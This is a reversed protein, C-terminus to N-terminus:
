FPSGFKRQGRTATAITSNWWMQTKFFYTFFFYRMFCRVIHSIYNYNVNCTGAENCSIDGVEPYINCEIRERQVIEELESGKRYFVAFAIDGDESYFRWRALFLRLRHFTTIIQM